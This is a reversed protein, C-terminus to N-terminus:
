GTVARQPTRSGASAFSVSASIASAKLSRIPHQVPGDANEGAAAASARDVSVAVCAGRFRRSQYLPRALANASYKPVANKRGFRRILVFSANSTIEETM